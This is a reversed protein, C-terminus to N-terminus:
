VEGLFVWDDKLIFPLDKNFMARLDNRECETCASYVIVGDKPDDELALSVIADLKPSYLVIENFM